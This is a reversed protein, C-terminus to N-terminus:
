ETAKPAPMVPLIKSLLLFAFMAAALLGLSIVWEIASPSYSWFSVFLSSPDDLTSTIEGTAVSSDSPSINFALPILLYKHVLIGAAM